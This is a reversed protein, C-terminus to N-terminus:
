MNHSLAKGDLKDFFRARCAANSLHSKRDAYFAATSIDKMTFTCWGDMIHLASFHENDFDLEFSGTVRGTNDLRERVHEAFTEPSIAQVCPVTHAFSATGPKRLLYIRLLRAADLVELPRESMLYQHEGQEIIHFISFRRNAEQEQQRLLDEHHIERQIADYEQAPLQRILADVQAQLLDHMLTGHQRELATVFRSDLWLTYEQMNM